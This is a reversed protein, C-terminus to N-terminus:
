SGRRRTRRGPRASIERWRDWLSPCGAAWRRAIVVVRGSARTGREGASLQHTRCELTEGNGRGGGALEEGRRAAGWGRDRGANGRGRARYPVRTPETLVARRNLRVTPPQRRRRGRTPLLRCSRSGRDCGPPWPGRSGRSLSLRGRVRGIPDVPRRTSPDVHRRPSLRGTVSLDDNKFTRQPPTGRAIYSEVAAPPELLGPVDTSSPRRPSRSRTRGGARRTSCARQM